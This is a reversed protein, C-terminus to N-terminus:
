IISEKKIKKKCIFCQMMSKLIIKTETKMKLLGLKGVLVQMFTGNISLTLAVIGAVHFMVQDQYYILHTEEDDIFLKVILALSLAIVGRLGAFTLVVCEQWSINYGTTKLPWWLIFITMARSIHIVIYLLMLWGVDRWQIVKETSGSAALRSDEFIGLVVIIGGFLFILTNAIYGVVEWFHHLSQEVQPSIASKYKSVVLGLFVVGLVGSMQNDASANECCWFCFYCAILTIVIEIREDNFVFRLWVVAGFGFILGMPVGGFTLVVFEKFIQGNTPPDEPSMVFELVIAFLVFASGDNLLSEGEILTALRKSAGLDRLLAVVAVPDTASVISAFTICEAWNWDYPFAYFCFLSIFTVNILVGPGALLLAQFFERRIVHFDTGFASEFILPPIFVGLLLHPDMTKIEFIADGLVRLQEMNYYESIGLAVGILLLIVTYPLPIHFEVNIHRTINGLLICFPILLLIAESPNNDHSHEGNHQDTTTTVSSLMRRFFYPAM